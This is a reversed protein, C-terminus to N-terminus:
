AESKVDTALCYGSGRITKILSPNLPDSEIIRRLKVVLNDISRDTPNWTHGRMLDMIRDRSLVTQPHLVFVTLLDFETSTLERVSNDESVLQRRGTDLTWGAFRFITKKRGSRAEQPQEQSRRLVARVRALVERLHFPKTIYDDAALELGVVRDIPDNKGTVMIIPVRSSSRIRAAIDLGDSDPLSLDLTVLDYTGSEMQQLAESGSAAESVRYGSGEFCRRMLLRIEPDDDVVLIHSLAASVM